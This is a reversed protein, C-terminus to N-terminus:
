EVGLMEVFLGTHGALQQLQNQGSFPRNGPTQREPQAPYESGRWPHPKRKLLPKIFSESHGLAKREWLGGKGDGAGAAETAGVPRPTHHGLVPEAAIVQDPRDEDM